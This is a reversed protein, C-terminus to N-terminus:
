VKIDNRDNVNTFLRESFQNADVINLKLKNFVSILKLDNDDLANKFTILCRKSFVGMLQHTVEDKAPITIDYGESHSILLNLLNANVYPIDCSLVLSLQTSAQQLGTYIGGLPGKGKVEDEYVPYGFQEYEKNNSIIIINEVIGNVIDIVHEIMPKGDLLMLGKDEGMRSSNGGALIIATREM